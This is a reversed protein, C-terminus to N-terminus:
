RDRENHTLLSFGTTGKLDWEPQAFATAGKPPSLLESEKEWRAEWKDENNGWFTSKAEYDTTEGEMQSDVLNAYFDALAACAIATTLYNFAAMQHEKITFTGTNNEQVLEAKLTFSGGTTTYKLRTFKGVRDKPLPLIFNGIGTIDNFAAIDTYDVDDPSSQVIIGINTGAAATIKVFVQIDKAEETDIKTSIVGAGTIVTGSADLTGVVDAVDEAVIHPATFIILFKDTASPRSRIFRLERGAPADFITWDKYELPKPNQEDVDWPFYINTIASFDEIWGTPLSYRFDDTGDVEVSLVRPFMSSFTKGADIIIRDRDDPSLNGKAEKLLADM